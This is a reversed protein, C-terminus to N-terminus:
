MGNIIDMTNANASFNPTKPWSPINGPTKLTVLNNMARDLISRNNDLQHLFATAMGAPTPSVKVLNELNIYPTGSMVGRGETKSDGSGANWLEKILNCNMGPTNFSLCIPKFVPLTLGLNINPLCGALSGGMSLHPLTYPIPPTCVRAQFAPLLNLWNPPWNGLLNKLHTSLGINFDRPYTIGCFSGTSVTPMATIKLASFLNSLLATLGLAKDLCTLNAGTGPRKVIQRTYAMDRVRMTDAHNKQIEQVKCSCPSNPPCATDAFASVNILSAILLTLFFIRKM